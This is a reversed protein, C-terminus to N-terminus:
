YVGKIRQNYFRGPSSSKALGEWVDPPVGTFTYSQGNAFEIMLEQTEKDYGASISQSLRQIVAEPM